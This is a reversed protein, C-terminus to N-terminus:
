GEAQQRPTTGKPLWRHDVLESLGLAAFYLFGAALVRQPESIWLGSGPLDAAARVAATIGLEPVPLFTTAFVAALYAMAGVAWSQQMFLKAKESPAQGVLMGLLRNLTLGWFAVIPWWTRFAAAFGGVFMTYFLGLGVVRKTREIPTAAGIAASGMFAASHVVIFELLMVLMLHGIRQVGLLDPAIWTALFVGALGFDPLAAILSPLRVRTDPM